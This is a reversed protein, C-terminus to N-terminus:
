LGKRKLFLYRLYVKLIGGLIVLFSGILTLFDPVVRFFAWDFIGSIVISLYLFTALTAPKGFGYAKGRFYQNLLAGM